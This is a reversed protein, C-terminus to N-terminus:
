ELESSSGLAFSIPLAVWTPIRCGESGAQSSVTGPSFRAVAAVRLAAADLERNGASQGLEVTRTEGNPSVLIDVIARGQVGAQRLHAPYHQALATGVARQNQLEPRRIPILRSDEATPDAERGRPNETVSDETFGECIPLASSSVSPGACGLTIALILLSVAAHQGWGLITHRSV